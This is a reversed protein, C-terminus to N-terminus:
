LVPTNNDDGGFAFWAILALLVLLAVYTFIITLNM